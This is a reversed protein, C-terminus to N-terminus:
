DNLQLEYYAQTYKPSKVPYFGKDLLSTKKFGNKELVKISPINEEFCVAGLRKINQEKLEDIVISLIKTMIGKGCLDKHLVYEIFWTDKIQYVQEIYKPTLINIQGAIMNEEKHTIYHMYGLEQQYSIVIGSIQENVQEPTLIKKEPIFETTEADSMLEIIGNVFNNMDVLDSQRLPHIEFVGLDLNIAKLKNM